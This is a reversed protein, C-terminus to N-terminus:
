SQLHSLFSSISEVDKIWKGTLSALERRIELDFRVDLHLCAKRLRTALMGGKRDWDTLIIVVGNFHEDNELIAGSRISEILDFINMGKNIFLVKKTVGSEKLATLDKIGEVLIICEEPYSNVSEIWDQIAERMEMDSMPFVAKQPAM